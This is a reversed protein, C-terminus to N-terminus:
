HERLVQQLQELQDYTNKFIKGSFWLLAVTLAIVALSGATKTKLSFRPNRWLLPLAFPGIVVVAVTFTWLSDIIRVRETKQTNM